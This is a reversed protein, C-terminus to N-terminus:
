SHCKSERENRCQKKKTPIEPVSPQLHVRALLPHDGTHNQFSLVQVCGWVLHEVEQISLRAEAGQLQLHPITEQNLQNSWLMKNLTCFLSSPSVSERSVHVRVVESIM